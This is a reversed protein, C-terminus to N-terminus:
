ETLPKTYTTTTQNHKTHAADPFFGLRHITEYLDLQETELPLSESQEVSRFRDKVAAAKLYLCHVQLPPPNGAGHDLLTYYARQVQKSFLIFRAFRTVEMSFPPHSPKGPKRKLATLGSM